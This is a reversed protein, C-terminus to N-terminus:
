MAVSSRDQGLRALLRTAEKLDSTDFGETFWGHVPALVERAEERRNQKNLLGALSTAARLEWMKAQQERAISLAQNFLAEAEEAKGKTLLFEGKHRNLEALFRGEGTAEVIRLAQDLLPLGADVRGALTHARAMLSIYHSMGAENGVARYDRAGQQLLRLGEEIEGESAMAWGRYMTAEAAWLPFRQEVALNFLQDARKRLAANNGSVSFLRCGFTLTGAQRRLVGLGEAEAVASEIHLHAREPYGLCFLVNSLVSRSTSLPDSGALAVLEERSVQSYLHPIEELYSQAEKFNGAIMLNMGLSNHSLILGRADRHLQSLRLLDRGLRLATELEGCYVHFLAQGYPVNLFEPPYGLEEWLQRARAYVRGREPSANGATGQMVGGLTALIELEQQRRARDDPLRKLQELAKQFQAAAETMASRATSRRAARVWYIAADQAQGAESYHHALLEPRAEGHDGYEDQLVTAIRAHLERRRTRLLTAYAADQVLAHKFLYAAQPPVGRCFLLGADALQGLATRLEPEDRRVVSAILDYSFERGIVAGIQATEKAATGLRDLRAILSAHLTAPIALGPAPSALVRSKQGGSELVAKTLEEIFLPVGDTREVIEAVVEPTVGSGGVLQGVLAAGDSEVLRNLTLATVHPQGSWAPQFEPRFTIVLLVPLRPLCDIALDLLERSTPDIWHADEFIMLVPQGAAVAELQHLLAHLLMDRKRPPSLKLDAAANPLSLLEAILTIERPDRIGAALLTDLKARKEELADARSFGAAREIQAIFPYLPSDQHHPSCFYRLRTHPEGEISHSLAATLRSKGIGPEGGILTVRGESRKAQEWRRRLLNLEEDRGVLPATSSRLAEFRSLVGSEGLVRWARLSEGYGALIQPGLNEVEFLGGLLDRTENAIVIQNADALSQLRAALNPPEGVVSREQAAGEGLLDGVVVLGSAIGIRVQLRESLELRGVAEILALGARVARESDEEHAQPYGFYILVGDGMYKAVFGDFRVVTDAVSRHYTALIQRLDEPDFRLSLPTSGVLDCFMVTLQRREVEVADFHPPPVPADDAGAREAGSAFDAIAKLLLRRHGIATVGLEKLDEVTVEPLVRLDIENDRFVQEYRELGLGRLWDGIDM